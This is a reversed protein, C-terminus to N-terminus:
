YPRTPESIHILSLDLAERASTQMKAALQYSAIRAALDNEAPRAALHKQNLKRVYDLFSKQVSGALHAPPQLNLIRPSSPRIVTGQYIAPLWGNSWNAVGEVPLQGPDIMALFAPLDDAETGLGYAMWSGLSPRGKTVKGTQLALISQGHNNVGTRM